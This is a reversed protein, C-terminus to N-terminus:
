VSYLVMIYADEKPDTYFEKRRGALVFGNQQYLRIAAENSVRVELVFTRVGQGKGAEILCKLMYNATGQRRHTPKVAVNVIEAEEFSQYYGCYGIIELTDALRATLYKTDKMRLSDCFDQRTWPRSFVQQEIAAVQPLDEERMERVILQQM